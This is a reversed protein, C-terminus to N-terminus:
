SNLLMVVSAVCILLINNHGIRKLVYIYMPTVAQLIKTRQDHISGPGVATFTVLRLM